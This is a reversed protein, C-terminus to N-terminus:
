GKLSCSGRHRRVTLLALGGGEEDQFLFKTM